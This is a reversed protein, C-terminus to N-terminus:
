APPQAASNWRTHFLEYRPTPKFMWQVGCTRIQDYPRRGVEGLSGTRNGQDSKDRHLLHNARKLLLRSHCAALLIRKLSVFTLTSGRGTSVELSRRHPIRNDFNQRSAATNAHGALAQEYSSHFFIRCP